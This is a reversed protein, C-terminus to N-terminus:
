NHGATSQRGRDRLPSSQSSRTGNVVTLVGDEHWETVGAFFRWWMRTLREFCRSPTHVRSHSLEIARTQRALVLDRGVGEHADERV